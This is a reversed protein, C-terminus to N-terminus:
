SYNEENILRLGYKFAFNKAKKIEKFTPPRSLEPFSFAKWCPYYQAMINVATNKSLKALFKIIKETGAIYKPLVLHRVLLGKKAIGDEILLDGVQQHMIQIAKKAIEFYNPAKSYKLALRNDSYKFDPMYIDIIGELLKLVAPEDYANTNYVLPLKLGKEIALPLAELIQAVQHTPSVLNINLCSMKQLEIMMEALKKLSIEKGMNIQSIEYNQCFVCALNCGSFFITGSGRRGVFCREEGFHPHFSFVKAKRGIKCFGKQNKLRNVKCHRPCLSCRELISLLKKVRKLLEKQSLNLYLPYKKIMKM